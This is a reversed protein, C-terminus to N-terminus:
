NLITCSNYTFLRLSLCVSLCLSPPVSHPLFQCPSPPLPPSSSLSLCASLCLPLCLCLFFCLLPSHAIYYGKDLQIGEDFKSFLRYRQAWYKKLIRDEAVEPPMPVRSTETKKNKKRRRRKHKKESFSDEQGKNSINMSSSLDCTDTNERLEYQAHPSSIFPFEAAQSMSSLEDDLQSQQSGIAISPVARASADDFNSRNETVKNSVSQLRSEIASEPKPGSRQGTIDGLASPSKNEVNGNSVDTKSEESAVIQAVSPCCSVNVVEEESSDEDESVGVAVQKAYVSFPDPHGLDLLEDDTEGRAVKALFRKAKALAKSPGPLTPKVTPPNGEEDFKIHKNAKKKKRKARKSGRTVLSGSSTNETDSSPTKSDRQAAIQGLNIRFHQLNKRYWAM